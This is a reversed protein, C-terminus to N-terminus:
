SSEGRRAADEAKRLDEGEEGDLAEAAERGKGEARGSRAFRHQEKQFKEASEYDGEGIKRDGPEHNGSKHNM